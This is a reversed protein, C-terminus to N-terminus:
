VFLNNLNDKQNAKPKAAERDAVDIAGINRAATILHIASIASKAVFIPTSLYLIM